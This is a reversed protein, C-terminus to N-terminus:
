SSCRAFPLAQKLRSKYLSWSSKQRNTRYNLNQINKDLILIKLIKLESGREICKTRSWATGKLNM